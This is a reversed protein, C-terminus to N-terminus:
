RAELGFDNKISRWSSHIHNAPNKASDAQVNLFEIVFTPGQVRYSHPVGPETGGAYAFHVKDLGAEKVENLEAAAIDAPMRQAYARILRELIGQQRETLKAAAIGKPEGLKPAATGEAIEPFQKDGQFAVKQQDEDLSKFLDRALDESEPLTRMGKRPGDKVTAPNAGFFAPTASVVKGADVVYNLALHHGEVRWGWKGTSSPKGFVSFFYWGPNRVMAGSKELDRLISELSMITTAKKNGDASTGAAVLALAAQKQEESMEELPLGKRTYMKGPNQRPTFYWNVREKDDFSFTAKAKQDASLTDLFRTAAGAMKAGAPEAQQAVYAVGALTGILIIALLIRILKM